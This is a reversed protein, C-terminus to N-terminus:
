KNETAKCRHLNLIPCVEISPKGKLENIPSLDSRSREQQASSLGLKAVPCNTVKGKVKIIGFLIRRIKNTNSSIKHGRM